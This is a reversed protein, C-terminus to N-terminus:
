INSITALYWQICNWLFSILWAQSFALFGRTKPGITAKQDLDPGGIRAENTVLYRPWSDDHVIDFFILSEIKLFSSLRVSPRVSSCLVSLGSHNWLVNDLHRRADLLLFFNLLKMLWENSCRYSIFSLTYPIIYRFFLAYNAPLFM